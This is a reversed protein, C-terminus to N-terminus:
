KWHKEPKKGKKKQFDPVVFSLSKQKTEPERKKQKFLFLSFFCLPVPSIDQGRQKQFASFPANQERHSSSFSATPIPVFCDPIIWDNINNYILNELASLRSIKCFDMLIGNCIARKRLWVRGQSKKSEAQFLSTIGSVKIWFIEGYRDSLQQRETQHIIGVANKVWEWAKGTRLFKKFFNSNKKTKKEM